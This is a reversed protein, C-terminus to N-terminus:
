LKARAGKSAQARGPAGPIEYAEDRASREPGPRAPVLQLKVEAQQLAERVKRMLEAMRAADEVILEVDRELLKSRQLYEMLRVLQALSREMTATLRQGGRLTLQAHRLQWRSVYTLLTDLDNKQEPDSAHVDSTPPPESITQVAGGAKLSEEAITDGSADDVIFVDDPNHFREGRVETAFRLAVDLPASRKLTLRQGRRFRVFVSYTPEKM